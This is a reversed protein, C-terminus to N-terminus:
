HIGGQGCSKSDTASQVADQNYFGKKVTPGLRSKAEVESVGLSDFLEALCLHLAETLQLPSTVSVASM